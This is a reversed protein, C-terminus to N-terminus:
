PTLRYLGLFTTVWVADPTLAVGNGDDTLLRLGGVVAASAADVRLLKGPTLAWFSGLGSGGGLPPGVGSASSGVGTPAFRTISDTSGCGTTASWAADIDPLLEGCLGPIAFGASIDDTAPDIREVAFAGAEPAILWVGTAYVLSQPGVEVPATQDGVPITAVVRNTAPDIKSVSRGHHNAVWVAGGGVAVGAPNPGVMITAIVSNTAPDIRLLENRVYDTVWIASADGAIWGGSSAEEFNFAHPVRTVVRRTAPDVRVVGTPTMVWLAGAAYAIHGAGKLPVTGAQQAAAALGPVPRVNPMLPPKPRTCVRVRIVKGHARKKVLHCAFPVPAAVPVVFALAVAGVCGGILFRTVRHRVLPRCASFSPARFM